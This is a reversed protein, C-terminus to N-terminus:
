LTLAANSFGSSTSPHKPSQKSKAISSLTTFASMQARSLRPTWGIPLAGKSMCILIFPIVQQKGFSTIHTIKKRQHKQDKHGRQHACVTDRLGAMNGLILVHLSQIPSVADSVKRKIIITCYGIKISTVMEEPQGSLLGTGCHCTTSWCCSLSNLARLIIAM